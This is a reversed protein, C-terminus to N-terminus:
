RLRFLLEVTGILLQDGDKLDASKVKQGNLLVGNTSGLDEVLFRGGTSRVVAHHRSIANGALVLGNDDARGISLADGKVPVTRRTGDAAALELLAATSVTAGSLAPMIQTHEPSGAPFSLDEIGAGSVDAAQGRGVFSAEVAFRGESLTPDAQLEVQFPDLNRMRRRAAATVLHRELERQLGATAGGFRAFTAPDLRVTYANPALVGNVGVMAGDAMASELRRGIQVPQLNPKFWREAAGEVLGSVLQELQALLNTM